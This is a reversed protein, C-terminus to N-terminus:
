LDNNLVTSSWELSGNYYVPIEEYSLFEQLESKTVYFTEAEGPVLYYTENNSVYPIYMTGMGRRSTVFTQIKLAFQTEATSNPTRPTITAINPVSGAQTLALGGDGIVIYLGSVIHEGQAVELAAQLPFGQNLLQALLRGIRVAGSNIVDNITVIGGISGSKILNEGQTYSSCANLLFSDIAVENLIASDLKGDACVFGEDDVHGIYHFFDAETCLIDALEDTTTERYITTDFRLNSRSGYIENIEEFEEGMEPENCVVTIEIDGITPERQTRHEYAEPIAKTAGIPIGNGVWVDTMSTSQPPQIFTDTLVSNSGRASTSRTFDSSTIGATISATSAEAASLEKVPGTRVITLDDVLYPLMEISTPIAKLHSTLKWQPLFDAVANFPIRLYEELRDAIPLHYADEFQFPVACQEEFRNRDALDVPYYGVSRTLCDLFFVQKLIQEVTQEFSSDKTLRWVAGSETRLKPIEGPIVTAGLYYALTAGAYIDAITPRLELTIGTDPPELGSPIELSEGLRIRPPHGRLSPFSREPSTTKLASGFTSIAALMEMPDSTTTITGAPQRHISRAGVAISRKTGFSIITQDTTSEITVSGHVELYLKIPACIELIYSDVPLSEYSSQETKTVMEGTCDRIIIVEVAPLTLSQASIQIASDVPFVFSHTDIEQAELQDPASLTYRHREIPDIIGLTTMGPFSVFTVNTQQCEQDFLQGQPRDDAFGSM